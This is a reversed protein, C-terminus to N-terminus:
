GMAGLYLEKSVKTRKIELRQYLQFMVVKDIDLNNSTLNAM